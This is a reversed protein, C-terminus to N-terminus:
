KSRGRGMSRIGAALLAIASLWGNVPLGVSRDITYAPGPMWNMSKGTAWLSHGSANKISDDDRVALNLTGEGVGTDVVISYSAADKAPEIGIISAGALGNRGVPEFDSEDVGTVPESFTVLFAVEQNGTTEITQLPNIPNVSCREVSVVKPYPYDNLYDDICVEFCHNVLIAHGLASLHIWDDIPGMGDIGLVAPDLGYSAIEESWQSEYFLIGEWPGKRFTPDGGLFPVYNDELQGPKPVQHPAFRFQDVGAPDWHPAHKCEGTWPQQVWAPINEGPYGLEYQLMGYNNVFRCREIDKVEQLIRQECRAMVDNVGNCMLLADSPLTACNNGAKKISNAYDYGCLVVRINPRTEVMNRIVTAVNGAIWSFFAAEQEPTDHNEFWSTPEGYMVDNGGLTLFVIDVEPNALLYNRTNELKIPMAWQNAKTSGLAINWADFQPFGRADLVERFTHDLWMFHTWSDGAMLIRTVPGTGRAEVNWGAVMVLMLLLPYKLQKQM